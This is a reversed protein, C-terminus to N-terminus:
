PKSSMEIDCGGLDLESQGARARVFAGYASVDVRLEYGSPECDAEVEGHTRKGAWDLLAEEQLDRLRIIMAM